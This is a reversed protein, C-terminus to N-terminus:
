YRAYLLSKPLDSFNLLFCKLSKLFMIKHVYEFSFAQQILTRQNWWDIVKPSIKQQVLNKGFFICIYRYIAIFLSSFQTYMGFWLITYDHFYCFSSGVIDKVPYYHVKVNLFILEITPLICSIVQFVCFSFGSKQVKESGHM